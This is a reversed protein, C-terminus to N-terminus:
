IDGVHHLKGIVEAEVAVARFLQNAGEPRFSPTTDVNTIHLQPTITEMVGCLVDGYGLLQRHLTEENPAALVAIVVISNLRRMDAGFRGPQDYGALDVQLQPCATIPPRERQGFCWQKVAPLGATELAPPLGTDEDQLATLIADVLVVSATDTAM